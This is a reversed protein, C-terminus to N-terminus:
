SQGAAVVSGIPSSEFFRKLLERSVKQAFADGASAGFLIVAKAAQPDEAVQPVRCLYAWKKSAPFTPDAIRKLVQIIVTQPTGLFKVSVKQFDKWETLVFHFLREHWETPLSPDDLIRWMLHARVFSGATEWHSRLRSQVDTEQSYQRLLGLFLGAREGNESDVIPWIWPLDSKEIKTRIEDIIPLQNLQECEVETPVKKDRLASVIARAIFSFDTLASMSQTECPKACLGNERLLEKALNQAFEDKVTLGLQLVANALPAAAHVSPVCYLYVWKKTEPFTNDVLRSAIQALANDPGGFFTRNFDCFVQWESRIFEVFNERWKAPLAPMDLLRWMIRNKLYPGAKAWQNMFCRQVEPDKMHHRALSCALGAVKPLEHSVLRLVWPIDTGLIHGRLMDILPRRDLSEAETDSPYNGARLEALVAEAVFNSRLFEM